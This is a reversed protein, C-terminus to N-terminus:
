GKRELIEVFVDGDRTDFLDAREGEIQDLGLAFLIGVGRQLEHLLLMLVLCTNKVM